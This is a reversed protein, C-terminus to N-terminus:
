NLAARLAGVFADFAARRARRQAECLAAAARLSKLSLRQPIPAATM